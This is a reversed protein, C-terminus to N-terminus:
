VAGSCRGEWPKDQSKLEQMRDIVQPGLGQKPLETAWFEREKKGSELKDMVQLLEDGNIRIWQGFEFFCFLDYESEKAGERCVCSWWTIAQLGM